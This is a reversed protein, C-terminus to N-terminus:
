HLGHLFFMVVVLLYEYLVRRVLIVNSLNILPDRCM